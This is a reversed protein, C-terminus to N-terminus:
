HGQCDGVMPPRRCGFILLMLSWDSGIAMLQHGWALFYSVILPTMVMQKM